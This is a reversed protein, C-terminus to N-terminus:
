GCLCLSCLSQCRAGVIPLTLHATGVRRDADAKQQESKRLLFSICSRLLASFNKDLFKLCCSLALGLLKYGGHKPVIIAM